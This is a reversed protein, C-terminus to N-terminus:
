GGGTAAAPMRLPRANGSQAPSQRNCCRAAAQAPAPATLWAWFAFCGGIEALAALPYILAPKM